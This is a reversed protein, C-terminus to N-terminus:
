DETPTCLVHGFMEFAEPNHSNLLSACSPCYHKRTSHNYFTAGPQQCASRNCNGGKVGKLAPNPNSEYESLQQAAKNIMSSISGRYGGGLITTMTLFTKQTKVERKERRNHKDGM